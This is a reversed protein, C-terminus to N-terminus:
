LRMWTYLQTLTHEHATENESPPALRSPSLSAALPRLFFSSFIFIFSAQLTSLCKGLPRASNNSAWTFTSYYRIPNQLCGSLRLLLRLYLAVCRVCLWMSRKGRPNRYETPSAPLITSALHFISRLICEINPVAHILFPPQKVEKQPMEDNEVKFQFKQVHTHTRAGRVVCYVMSHVLSCYLSNHTERQTSGLSTKM